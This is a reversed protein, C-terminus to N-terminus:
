DDYDPDPDDISGRERRSPVVRGEPDDVYRGLLEQAQDFSADTQVAEMDVPIGYQTTLTELMALQDISPRRTAKGDADLKLFRDELGIPVGMAALQRNFEAREKPTPRPYREAVHEHRVKLKRGEGDAVTVGHRGAALTRALIPEKHMGPRMVRVYDGPAPMNPAQPQKPQKTPNVTVKPQPPVAAAQGKQLRAAAARFRALGIVSRSDSAM